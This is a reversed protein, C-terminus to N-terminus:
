SRWGRQGGGPSRRADPNGVEPTGVVELMPLDSLSDAYAFSESLAVGNREAYEQLLAGRAEGAPPPSQLDGTLRGDKVLLHACDVEAELLEALPEVVVDLAGTLLLVRHGARKHERIRRMGEPYIRGLTVADLAERGLRRM